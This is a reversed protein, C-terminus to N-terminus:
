CKVSWLSLKLGSYQVLSVVIRALSLPTRQSLESAAIATTSLPAQLGQTHTNKYGLPSRNALGAVRGEPTAGRWRGREGYAEDPYLGKHGQFAEPMRWNKLLAYEKIFDKFQKGDESLGNYFLLSLEDTSLQARVLGIYHAKDEIPGKHVFEILHYLTRFYHGFDSRDSTCAKKFAHDIAISRLEEDSTTDLPITFSSEMDNVAKQFARSGEWEQGHESTVRMAQMSDRQFKLLQFFSTEFRQHALTANQAEMEQRQRVMEERTLRLEERQLKLEARQYVLAYIVGIFALGSFLAALGEYVGGLDVRQNYPMWYFFGFGVLVVLIVVGLSAGIFVWFSPGDRMAKARQDDM